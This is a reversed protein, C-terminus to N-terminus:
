KRDKIEVGCMQALSVANDYAFATYKFAALLGLNSVVSLALWRKRIREDDTAAIRRGAWYDIVTLALIVWLYGPSSWAYFAWSALTLWGFKLTRRRLLHYVVLVVPLFVFFAKGGVTM